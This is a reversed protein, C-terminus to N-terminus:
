PAISVACIDDARGPLAGYTTCAPWISVLNMDGMYFKSGGSTNRVRTPIRWTGAELTARGPIQDFSGAHAASAGAVGGAPDPAHGTLPAGVRLTLILREAVPALRGM